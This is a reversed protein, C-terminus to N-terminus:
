APVNTMKLHSITIHLRSVLALNKLLKYHVSVKRRGYTHAVLTTYEKTNEESVGAGELWKAMAETITKETEENFVATGLHARYMPPRPKRRHGNGPLYNLASEKIM